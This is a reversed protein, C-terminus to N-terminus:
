IQLFLEITQTTCFQGNDLKIINSSKYLTLNLLKHRYCERERPANDITFLYEGKHMQKDKGLILCDKSLASKKTITIDYDFCDWIQLVDSLNEKDYDEKWVFAPFNTLYHEM